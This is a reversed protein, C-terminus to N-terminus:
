RSTNQQGDWYAEITSKTETFYDQIKLFYITSLWMSCRMKFIITPQSQVDFLTDIGRWTIFVITKEGVFVNRVLASRYLFTITTQDGVSGSGLFSPLAPPAVPLSVPSLPLFFLDTALFLVEFGAWTTMWSVTSMVSSASSVAGTFSSSIARLYGGKIICQYTVLTDDMITLMILLTCLINKKKVGERWVLLTSQFHPNRSVKEFDCHVIFSMTPFRLVTARSGERGAYATYARSFSSLEPRVSPYNGGKHPPIAADLCYFSPARTWIIKAVTEFSPCNLERWM